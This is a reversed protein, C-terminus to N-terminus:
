EAAMECLKNVTNWNRTTAVVGLAREIAANHLKTTGYGHPCHVYVNAGLQRWRDDGAEIAGLRAVASKTPVEALFTVHLSKLDIGRAALFPNARFAKALDGPTKLIVSVALGSDELLQTEIKKGLSAVATKVSFLVNGSQIYTRVDALGLAEFSARALDMKLTKGGVNVGRLLAIMTGM